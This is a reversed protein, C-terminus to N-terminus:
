KESWFKQKQHPSERGVGSRVQKPMDGGGVGPLRPGYNGVDNESRIPRNEEWELDCMSSRTEEWELYGHDMTVWTMRAIDAVHIHAKEERGFQDEGLVPTAKSSSVRTNLCLASIRWTWRHNFAEIWTKTNTTLQVIMMPMAGGHQTCSDRQIGAGATQTALVHWESTKIAAGNHEWCSLLRLIKWIWIIFLNLIFIRM